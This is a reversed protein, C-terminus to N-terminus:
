YAITGPAQDESSCFAVNRALPGCSTPGLLTSTVVWFATGLFIIMLLATELFSFYGGKSLTGRCCPVLAGWKQGASLLLLPM